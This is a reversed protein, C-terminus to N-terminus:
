IQYSTSQQSVDAQPRETHLEFYCTAMTSHNKSFNTRKGFSQLKSQYGLAIWYMESEAQQYLAFPFYQM